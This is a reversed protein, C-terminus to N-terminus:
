WTTFAWAWVPLMFAFVIFSMFISAVTIKVDLDYNEAIVLSAFACPMASQLVLVLRQPGDLGLMTLGTGILLPSLITKIIVPQIALKLEGRVRLQQARMGMVLLAIMISGWGINHLTGAVSEHFEVPKLYLGAFFAYLTPNKIIEAIATGMASIPREPRRNNPEQDSTLSENRAQSVPSEPPTSSERDHLKRTAQSHQIASRAILVGLGYGAPLTGLIDYLVASSFYQEGLQPLLLIVPFGLYSTNGLYSLIIYSKRTQQPRTKRSSQLIQRSLAIALLMAIWAVLPALWASSNLDAKHIFNAVGIPIGVQYLLKSLIDAVRKELSAGQTLQQRRSLVHSLLFGSATAALVPVYVATFIQIIAQM